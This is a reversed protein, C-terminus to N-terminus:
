FKKENFLKERSSVRGEHVPDPSNMVTGAAIKKENADVALSSIKNFTLFAEVEMNWLKLEAGSKLKSHKELLRKGENRFYDSNGKEEIRESLTRTLTQMSSHQRPKLFVHLKDKDDWEIITKGHLLSNIVIRENNLKEVRISM